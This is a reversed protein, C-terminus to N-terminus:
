ARYIIKYKKSHKEVRATLNNIDQLNLDLMVKNEELETAQEKIKQNLDFTVKDKDELAKEYKAILEKDEKSSSEIVQPEMSVNQNTTLEQIKQSASELLNDYKARLECYKMIVEDENLNLLSQRKRININGKSPSSHSQQSHDQSDLPSDTHATEEAGGDGLIANQPLFQLVKKDTVIHIPLNEKKLDKRLTMIETKLADCLYKYEKVGM